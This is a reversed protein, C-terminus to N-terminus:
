ACFCGLNRNSFLLPCGRSDQDRTEVFSPLVSGWTPTSSRSHPVGLVQYFMCNFFFFFVLVLFDGPYVLHHAFAAGGFERTTADEIIVFDVTHNTFNTRYMFEPVGELRQDSFLVFHVM